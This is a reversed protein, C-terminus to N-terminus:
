EKETWWNRLDLKIGKTAHLILSVRFYNHEDIMEEKYLNAGFKDAYHEWGMAICAKVLKEYDQPKDGNEVCLLEIEDTVEALFTLAPDLQYRVGKGPKWEEPGRMAKTM